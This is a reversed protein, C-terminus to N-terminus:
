GESPFQRPSNQPKRILVHCHWSECVKGDSRKKIFEKVQHADIIEDVIRKM